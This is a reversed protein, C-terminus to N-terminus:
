DLPVQQPTLAQQARASVETSWARATVSALVADPHPQWPQRLLPPPDRLNPVGAGSADHSWGRTLLPMYAEPSATEDQFLRHQDSNLDELYLDLLETHVDHVLEVPTTADFTISWDAPM